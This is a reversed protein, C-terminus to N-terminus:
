KAPSARQSSRRRITTGSDNLIKLNKFSFLFDIANGINIPGAEDISTKTVSFTHKGTKPAVKQMLTSTVFDVGSDHDTFHSAIAHICQNCIHNYEPDFCEECL